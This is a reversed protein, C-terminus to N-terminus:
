FRPVVVGPKKLVREDGEKPKPGVFLAEATVTRPGTIETGEPSVETEARFVEAGVHVKYAGKGREREELEADTKARARVVYFNDAPSRAEYKLKLSATVVPRAPTDRQGEEEEEEKGYDGLRAMAVRGCAEDVVTALAGGHVVTPWGTAARGFYVLVVVDGTDREQWVRQYGGM